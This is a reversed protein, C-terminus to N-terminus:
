PGIAIDGPTAVKAKAFHLAQVNGSGSADFTWIGRVYRNGKAIYGCIEYLFGNAVAISLGITEGTGLCGGELVLSREVNVRGWTHTPLVGVSIWERSISGTGVFVENGQPRAFQLTSWGSANPIVPRTGRHTRGGRRGVHVYTHDLAPQYVDGREDVGIEYAGNANGLYNPTAVYGSTGPTFVAINEFDMSAYIYGAADVALYGPEPQFGSGFTIQRVLQATKGAIKYADIAHYMYGAEAVYVLGDPGVAVGLPEHLGTVIVRGPEVAIGAKLDFQLLHGGGSDGSGYDTLYAHGAGQARSAAPITRLQAASAPPPSCALAGLVLLTGFQFTRSARATSCV